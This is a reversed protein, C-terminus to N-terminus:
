KSDKVAMFVTVESAVIPRDAEIDLYGDRVVQAIRGVQDPDTSEAGRLRRHMRPDFADGEGPTYSDVGNNELALEVTEAFSILLRVAQEADYDPPLTAAQRLLDNRLRCMETLLPRLLGRREGRRLTELESRLYDIVGERQAARDHYREAAGALERVAVSLEALPPEAADDADPVDAVPDAPPGAPDATTQPVGEAEAPASRQHEDAEAPRGATDPDSAEPGLAEDAGASGVQSTVIM